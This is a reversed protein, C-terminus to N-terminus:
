MVYQSLYDDNKRLKRCFSFYMCIEMCGGCMREVVKFGRICYKSKGGGHCMSEFQPSMVRLPTLPTSHIKNLVTFVHVIKWLSINLFM